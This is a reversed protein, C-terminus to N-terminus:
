QPSRWMQYLTPGDPLVIEGFCEFGHREYLARNRLTTAELYASDRRVDLRRLQQECCPRASARARASPFRGSSSSTGTPITPRTPQSSSTSSSCSPPTHVLTPRSGLVSSRSSTPPSGRRDRAPAVPGRRRRRRHPLDRRHPEFVISTSSSCRLPCEARDHRPRARDVRHRSRRLLVRDARSRRDEPRAHEARRVTTATTITETTTMGPAHAVPARREAPM